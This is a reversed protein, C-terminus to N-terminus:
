KKDRMNKALRIPDLTYSTRIFRIQFNEFKGPMDLGSRFANCAYRTGIKILTGCM